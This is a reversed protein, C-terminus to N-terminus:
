KVMLKRTIEQNGVQMQVFYLGSALGENRVDWNLLHSGAVHQGLDSQLIERGQFDMLKLSINATKKLELDIYFFADAPNPYLDFTADSFREDDISVNLINPQALRKDTFLRYEGPNLSIGATTNTVNMSDGSFFEYWWGTHQFAPNVGNPTVGFNGIIAVDMDSHNIHITKSNGNVSLTFDDSEFAPENVKLEILAQYVQYLRKRAPEKFYNWRIPKRGTRGNQDIDIDYGLEGFQWILKPGPVTIFFAAAQEMRELGTNKNKISYNGSSNGYMIAEYMLRQEDHSEMYGVVHPDNWGRRKYSVWNFDGPTYGIAADKYDWHANGWILMGYNALEREESNDAFHELIVLAEPNVRWMTDAIRKLTAIRDADYAGFAGINGVTNKQTFGKSLDFRYGDLQYEELWYKVVRNVFDQTSQSEHNFDYGVNFDHKAVPNFFPNIMAPRNNAGDWWLEVWPNQGFAHNLVIDGIVAIGRRHCEDVLAKFDDKPGYYKDVAFFFSPNYGWSDNNEFEMIPMFEIANIGLNQLYDLTDMVTKFDHKGLFDRIHLEYVVMDTVAPKQFNSHQWNYPSQATQFVSVIRSTKGFPYSKLNPYTSASIDDDAWPDLIKDTYPDAIKLDGDVWYQYAYEEGPTLGTIEKWYHQGNPTRNMYNIDAVEWDNFDGIVFAYSKFPAFLVLVVTTDNIYNIGDQMDPPLSAVPPNPDRVYLAVSDSITGAGNEAVAKIRYFGVTTGMFTYSLSPMDTKSVEAGNIFLRVSDAANSGILISLSAGQDIINQPDAPNLITLSLGAQAVNVYMDSGDAARGVTNGGADRFVFALQKITDTMPVGYYNRIHYKLQYRDNGLSKMKVNPDTTAWGSKVYKWDTPSTSKDTIVGTHAYVDGSFGALAGNGLTADYIVTVTDDAIPLTPITTIVQASSSIAILSLLLTLLFPYINKM